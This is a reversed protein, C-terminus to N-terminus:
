DGHDVRCDPVALSWEEVSGRGAVRLRADSCVGNAAIKLVTLPQVQWGEPLGPLLSRLDQAVAAHISLGRQRALLPLGELQREVEAREGSSTIAEVMGQLRPAVLATMVAILMLVVLLELLSFGRASSRARAQGSSPRCSGSIRM